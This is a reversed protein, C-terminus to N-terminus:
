PTTPAPGNQIGEIQSSLFHVQKSIEPNNKLDKEVTSVAYIVSTTDRNFAKGITELTHSTYKRTLFISLNRPILHVRKRSRSTMEELSIRFYKGVLDKIAQMSIEQKEELQEQVVLEALSLDLRQNMLTAQASMRILCGELQRMDQFPKAALFEKVEQLLGIGLFNSKKEVIGLRTEFDPPDISGILASSLRSKLKSGLRPIDKPPLSSTFIIKKNDNFLNDLTYGLETQTTEKGSLFHVEELLLFDCNKRYKDKFTGMSNTKLSQVMENTFDETSLYLVKAQPQHQHIYHGVAQSLHTKGLGSSSFLYLANNHLNKGTALAMSALYAFHNSPGTVFQDFTFNVNLRLQDKRDFGPLLFQQPRASSVPFSRSPRPTSVQFNIKRTNPNLDQAVRVIRAYYKDKVWNLSFPNPCGLLLEEEESPLLDLPDIWMRYQTDPIETQLQEKIAQWLNEIM